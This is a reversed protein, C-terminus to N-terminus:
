RVLELKPSLELIGNDGSVDIYGDLPNKSVWGGEWIEIERLADALGSSEDSFAIGILKELLKEEEKNMKLIKFNFLIDIVGMLLYLTRM